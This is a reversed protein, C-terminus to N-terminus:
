PQRLEFAVKVELDVQLVFRATGFPWGPELLGGAFRGAASVTLEIAV